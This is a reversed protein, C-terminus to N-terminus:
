ASSFPGGMPHTPSAPSREQYGRRRNNQTKKQQKIDTRMTSKRKLYQSERDSGLLDGIPFTPQRAVPARKQVAAADFPHCMPRYTRTAKELVM